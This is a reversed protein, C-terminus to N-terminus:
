QNICAIFATQESSCAAVVPIGNQRAKEAFLIPFRGAGALLGIPEAVVPATM